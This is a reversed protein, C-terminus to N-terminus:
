EHMEVLPLRPLLHALNLGDSHLFGGQILMQLVAPYLRHELELVRAALQAVAEDPTVKLVARGLIAGTDTQESVLHVSAGHTREGARIVRRHTDLGPYRPLLSPHINVLRRRWRQVFDPTLIRMFGALVVLDPTHEQLADNLAADFAGRSAFGRHDVTLTEVGARRAVKIGAVDPHSSLVLGINATLDGKAAAALLAALNTGRGSILVALRAPKGPRNLATDGRVPRVRCDARDAM